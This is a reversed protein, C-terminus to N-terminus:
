HRRKCSWCCPWAGVSLFWFMFLVILSVVFLGQAEYVQAWKAGGGESGRIFCSLVVDFRSLPPDVWRIAAERNAKRAEPKENRKKNIVQVRWDEEDCEGCKVTSHKGRVLM